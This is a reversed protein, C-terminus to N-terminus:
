SKNYKEMMKGGFFGALDVDSFLLVPVFIAVFIVVLAAMLIAVKQKPSRRPLQTTAVEEEPTFSTAPSLLHLSVENEDDAILESEQTAM